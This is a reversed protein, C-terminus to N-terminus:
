RKQHEGCEFATTWQPTDAFRFPTMDRSVDNESAGRSRRDVQEFSGDNLRERVHDLPTPPPQQIEAAQWPRQVDDQCDDDEIVRQVDPVDERVADWPQPSKVQNM